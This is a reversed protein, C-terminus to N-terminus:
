DAAGTRRSGVEISVCGHATVRAYAATAGNCMAEATQGQFLDAVDSPMLGDLEVCLRGESPECLDVEVSGDFSSQRIDQISGFIVLPQQGFKANFAVENRGEVYEGILNAVAAEIPQIPGGTAEIATKTTFGEPVGPPDSPGKAQWALYAAGM